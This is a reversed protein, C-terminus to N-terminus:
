DIQAEIGGDKFLDCYYMVSMKYVYIQFVIPLLCLAQHM